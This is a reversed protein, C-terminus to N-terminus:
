VPQILDVSNEKETSLRKRIRISIGRSKATTDSATEDEADNEADVELDDVDINGRLHVKEIKFVGRAEEAVAEDKVGDSMDNM